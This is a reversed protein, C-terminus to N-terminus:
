RGTTLWLKLIQENSGVRFIRRESRRWVATHYDNPWSQHVSGRVQERSVLHSFFSVSLYTVGYMSSLSLFFFRVNFGYSITGWFYVGKGKWFFFRGEVIGRRVANTQDGEQPRFDSIRVQCYVFTDRARSALQRRVNEWALGEGGGM